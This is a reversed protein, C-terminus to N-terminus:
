GRHRRILRAIVVLSRGPWALICCRPSAPAPMAASCGAQLPPHCGARGDDGWWRLARVSDDRIVGYSMLAIPLTTGFGSLVPVTPLLIGLTRSRNFSGM